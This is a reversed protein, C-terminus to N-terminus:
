NDHTFLDEGVAKLAKAVKNIWQGSAGDEPQQASSSFSTILRKSIQNRRIPKLRIRSRISVNRVTKVGV